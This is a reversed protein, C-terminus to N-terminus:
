DSKPFTDQFFFCTKKQADKPSPPTPAPPLGRDSNKPTFPAIVSLFCKNLIPERFLRFFLIGTTEHRLKKEVANSKRVISILLARGKGKTFINLSLRVLSSQPLEKVKAFGQLLRIGLRISSARLRKEIKIKAM